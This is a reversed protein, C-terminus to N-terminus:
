RMKSKFPIVLVLLFIPVIVLLIKYWNTDSILGQRLSIATIVLLFLLMMGKASIEKPNRQM